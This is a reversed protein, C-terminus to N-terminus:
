ARPEGPWTLAVDGVAALRSIYGTLARGRAPETATSGPVPWGIALYMARRHAMVTAEILACYQEVAGGVAWWLLCALAIDAIAIVAALAAPFAPLWILAAVCWMLNQTRGALRRSATDLSDSAHRPLTQELLPWCTALDLGHRCCVRQDMAAFANGVRTPRVAADGTPYWALRAPRVPRAPRAQVSGNGPVLRGVIRDRRRRHARVRLADVGALPGSWGYGAILSLVPRTLTAILSTGAIIGLVGLLVLAAFRVDARNSLNCWVGAPPLGCRSSRPATLPIGGLALAGLCWFGLAGPIASLMWLRSRASLLSGLVADV